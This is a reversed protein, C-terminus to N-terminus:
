QKEDPRGRGADAFHDYGRRGTRYVRGDERVCVLRGGSEVVGIRSCSCGHAEALRMIEGRSSPPAVFCLEYDDGASLALDLCQREGLEDRAAQMARSLPIREVSIRAGVGSARLVHGLDALLGDSVDVMAHVLGRLAMGLAVRPVPRELRDRLYEGGSGAVRYRGAIAMLALGADGLTGTVYVDDGERAGARSCAGGCPVFGHAQITVTLPGRTTDGGVLQLGHRGALGFLGASFQELWGMDRGPLTLGLSFWAPEAGMAALDSLNVALAKYGIAEAPTNDPFHVGKVLTDLVAVLEQGPPVRLVAGDDGIGRTVDARQPGRGDFFRSIIDFESIAM